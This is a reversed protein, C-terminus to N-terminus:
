ETEGQIEEKVFMLIFGLLMLGAAIWIAPNGFKQSAVAGIAAGIAFVLIIFYYHLSKRKLEPDKTIHYRCLLETGSRMNGICMTTACPIGRFKRFSDVQMACAFSMLVNSVVNLSQPLLGAIALMVIEFALVIQRWHLKQFSKCLERVWESLYVGALFALLPFLYHLANQFNGSAINQGLLVINGTQANAFVQGRCNYSYADQFGGALTLVVGLIMSESMQKPKRIM